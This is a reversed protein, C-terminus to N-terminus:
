NLSDSEWDPCSEGECGYPHMGCVLLNKGYIQGHYHQCGICVANKHATPPVYTVSFFRDDEDRGGDLDFELDLYLEFPRFRSNTSHRDFEAAMEDIVVEITINARGSHFVRRFSKSAVM